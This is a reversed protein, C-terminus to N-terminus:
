PAALGELLSQMSRDLAAVEAPRIRGSRAARELKPRLRRAYWDRLEEGAALTARAERGDDKNALV